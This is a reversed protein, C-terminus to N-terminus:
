REATRSHHVSKSVQGSTPLAESHDIGECFAQLKVAYFRCLVARLSVLEDGELEARVLLRYREELCLISGSLIADVGRSANLLQLTFARLLQLHAEVGGTLAQLTYARARIM